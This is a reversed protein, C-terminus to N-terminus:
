PFSHFDNATLARQDLYAGTSILLRFRFTISEEKLLKIQLVDEDDSYVQQGLPNAALLGYPRAMWYAPYGPNDPHDIIAIGVQKGSVEGNLICWAAKKGWVEKGVLGLSNLYNGTIGNNNKVKERIVEGNEDTFYDKGAPLELERRVRIAFFGEKSDQIVLTDQLSTLTSLRDIIRINGRQVFTLKASEAILNQGLSSKWLHAVNLEAANDTIVEDIEQLRIHGYHHRREEPIAFSNNWFDIDNIDGHNMWSGVQHPHDAREFPIKLIPYGRTIRLNGNGNIPFLIPKKLSDHYCYSTFLEDGILVDIQKQEPHHSFYVSSNQQSTCSALGLIATFILRSLTCNM